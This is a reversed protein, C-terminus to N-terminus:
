RCGVLRPSFAFMDGSKIAAFQDNNIMLDSHPTNAADEVPASFEEGEGPQGASRHLFVESKSMM